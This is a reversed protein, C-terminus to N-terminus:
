RRVIFESAVETVHNLGCLAATTPRISKHRPFNDGPLKPSKCCYRGFGSLAFLGDVSAAEFRDHPGASTYDFNPPLDKGM